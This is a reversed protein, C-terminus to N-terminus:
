SAIWQLPRIEGDAGVQFAVNDSGIQVVVVQWTIEHVAEDVPQLEPPLVLSNGRVFESYAVGSTYDTVTVQYAQDSQLMGASVWRLTLPGGAVISGAAPWLLRVAAFTPTITPTESGSPTPTASPTPTPLPITLEEAVNLLPACATGGSAITFDCGHWWLQPNLQALIAMTTNYQQAIGVISQGEEVVHIGTLRQPTATPPNQAVITATLEGGLPTPLPTPRPVLITSGPPPLRDADPMNGNLAVVADLVGLDYHGYQLVIGILGEGAQVVHEHPGPTNTITPTVSPTVPTSTHAPTIQNIPALTATAMVPAISATTATVTPPVVAAPEVPANAVDFNCGVLFSLGVVLLLLLVNPFRVM